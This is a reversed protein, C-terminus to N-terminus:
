AQAKSREASFGEQKGEEKSRSFSGGNRKCGFFHGEETSRVEKLIPEEISILDM